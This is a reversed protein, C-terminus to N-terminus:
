GGVGVLLARGAIAPYCVPERFTAIDITGSWKVASANTTASKATRRKPPIWRKSSWGRESGAVPVTPQRKATKVREDDGRIM